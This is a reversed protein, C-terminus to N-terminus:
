GFPFPNIDMELSDRTYTELNILKSGDLIHSGIEM